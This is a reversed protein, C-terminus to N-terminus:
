SVSHSKIPGLETRVLSERVCQRQVFINRSRLHGLMMSIGSNPFGQRLGRILEDLDSDTIATYHHHRSSFSELNRIRRWLTTRSVLLKRSIQSWNFRMRNRLFELQHTSIEYAPRGARKNIPGSLGPLTRIPRVTTCSSARIALMEWRNFLYQLQRLLSELEPIRIDNGQDDPDLSEVLRRVSDVAVQFRVVLKEAMNRDAHPYFRSCDRLLRSVTELLDTTPSSYSSTSLICIVVLALSFAMNANRFASKMAVICSVYETLPVKRAMKYWTQNRFGAYICMKARTYTPKSLYAYVRTKLLASLRANSKACIRTNFVRIYAIYITTYPIFAWVYRNYVIIRPLFAWTCSTM